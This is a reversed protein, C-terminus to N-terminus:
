INGGKINQLIKRVFCNLAIVFIRKQVKVLSQSYERVELIHFVEILLVEGCSLSVVCIFGAVVPFLCHFIAAVVKTGIAYCAIVFTNLFLFLLFVEKNKSFCLM